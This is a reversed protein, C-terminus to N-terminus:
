AGFPVIVVRTVSAPVAVAAHHLALEPHIIRHIIQGCIGLLPTDSTATSRNDGCAHIRVQGPEHTLGTGLAKLLAEKATWIEMLHLGRNTLDAPLAALEAPHCFTAECEPLEAARQSSEVDVGVPGDVCLALLALNECHTLSIHLHDFPASLEPKGLDSLALPVDAPNIRIVKGIIRRVAARCAVWHAAHDPYVFSSARVRESPSLM